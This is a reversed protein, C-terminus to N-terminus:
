EMAQDHNDEDKQKIVQKKLSLQFLLKVIPMGSVQIEQDLLEM